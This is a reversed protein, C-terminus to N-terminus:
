ERAEELEDLHGKLMHEAFAQLLSENAVNVLNEIENAVIDEHAVKALIPYPWFLAAVKGASSEDIALDLSVRNKIANAMQIHDDLYGIVLSSSESSQEVSILDKVFKLKNDAHYYGVSEDFDAFSKKENDNFRDLAVTGFFGAFHEGIYDRKQPNIPRGSLIYMQYGDAKFKQLIDKLRDSVPVLRVKFDSVEESRSDIKAAFFRAFEWVIESQLETNPLKYKQPIVRRALPALRGETELKNRGQKIPRSLIMNHSNGIAIFKSEEPGTIESMALTGDFDVLLIKENFGTSFYSNKKLLKRMTKHYKEINDVFLGPDTGTAELHINSLYGGKELFVDLTTFNGEQRAQPGEQPMTFPPWPEEEKEMAFAFGLMTLSSFIIAISIKKM